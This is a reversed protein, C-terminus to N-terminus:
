VNEYTYTKNECPKAVSNQFFYNLFMSLLQMKSMQM